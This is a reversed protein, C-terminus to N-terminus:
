LERWLVLSKSTSGSSVPTQTVEPSVWVGPCIIRDASVGLDYQTLIGLPCTLRLRICRVGRGATTGCSGGDVLLGEGMMVHLWVPM